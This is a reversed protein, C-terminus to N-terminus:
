LTVKLSPCAGGKDVGAMDVPGTLVLLIDANSAEVVRPLKVLEKSTSTLQDTELEASGRVTTTSKSSEDYAHNPFPNASTPASDEPFVL